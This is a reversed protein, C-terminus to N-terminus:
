KKMKKYSEFLKKNIYKRVNSENLFKTKVDFDSANMWNTEKGRNDIVKIKASKKGTADKANEDVASIKYRRGMFLYALSMKKKIMKDRDDYGTTDEGLFQVMEGVNVDYHKISFDQVLQEYGGLKMKNILEESNEKIDKLIESDTFGITRFLDYYEKYIIPSIPVSTNQYMPLKSPNYKRIRELINIKSEGAEYLLKSLNDLAEYGQKITLPSESNGKLIARYYSIIENIIKPNRLDEIDFKYTPIKVFKSDETKGGLGRNLIQYFKFIGPMPVGNITDKPDKNEPKNYYNILKTKNELDELNEKREQASTELFYIKLFDIDKKEDSGDILSKIFDKNNKLLDRREKKSAVTHSDTLPFEKEVIQRQGNDDLIFEGEENKLVEKKLGIPNGEFDRRSFKHKDSKPMELFDMFKDVGAPGKVGYAKIITEFYSDIISNFVEKYVKSDKSSVNTLKKLMKEFYSINNKIYDKLGITAIIKKFDDAPLLDLLFDIKFLILNPNKEALAPLLPTLQGLAEKFTVSKTYGEINEIFKEPGFQALADIADLNRTAFWEKAKTGGNSIISQKSSEILDPRLLDLRNLLDFKDKSFFASWTTGDTSIKIAKKAAPTGLFEVYKELLDNWGYLTTGIPQNGVQKGEGMNQTSEITTLSMLTSVPVEKGKEPGLL